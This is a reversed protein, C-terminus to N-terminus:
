WPCAFLDGEMGVAFYGFRTLLIVLLSMAGIDASHQVLCTRERQPRITGECSSCIANYSLGFGLYLFVSTFNAAWHM